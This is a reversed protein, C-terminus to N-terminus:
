PTAEADEEPAPDATLNALMRRCYDTVYAAIEKYLGAHGFKSGMEEAVRPAEELVKSSLAAVRHRVQTASLGNEESFRDWHRGHLHGGRDKDAVKMALNRTVNPYIDGCIVDYIPALEIGGGQRVLLSYNKSHADVNGVLISFLMADLFRLRNVTSNPAGALAAM